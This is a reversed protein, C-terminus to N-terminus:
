KPFLFSDNFNSNKNLKSLLDINNEDKNIKSFEIECNGEEEQKEKSFKVIYGLNLLDMIKVIRRFSIKLTKIVYYLKLNSRRYFEMCRILNKNSEDKRLEIEEKLLENDTKLDSIECYFKEM